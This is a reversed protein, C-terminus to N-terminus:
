GNSLAIKKTIRERLLARSRHYQSKSTSESIGLKAAIDRHSFDELVFLVFVQRCGDPLNSIEQQLMAANVEQWWCDGSDDATEQVEHDDAWHVKNRGQRICENVVIKRLWGAFAKPDRLQSLNKFAVIFADHLLDEAQMKNGAMRLCINFMARSFQQYLAAQADTHGRGARVVM